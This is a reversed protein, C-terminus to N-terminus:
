HFWKDMDLSVGQSPCRFSSMLFTTVFDGSPTGQVPPQTGSTWVSLRTPGKDVRRCRCTVGSLETWVPPRPRLVFVVCETQRSVLRNPFLTPGTVSLPRRPRGTGYPERDLFVAAVTHTPRVRFQRRWRPVPRRRSGVCHPVELEERLSPGTPLPAGTHVPHKREDDDQFTGRGRPSRAWLSHLGKWWSSESTGCRGVGARGTHTGSPCAGPLRLSSTDDPVEWVGSGM